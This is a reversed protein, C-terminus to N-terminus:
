KGMAQLAEKIKGSTDTNKFKVDKLVHVVDREKYGLSVLADIVDEQEPLSSESSPLSSIKNKLEVIIREATRKGVRPISSLAAVNKEAIAQEITNKGKDILLLATKPGVNSVTLLLKFFDLDSWSKFGFLSSGRDTTHEYICFFGEANLATTERLSSPAMIEYGVNGAEVILADHTKHIVKGKISSIM